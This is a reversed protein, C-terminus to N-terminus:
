QKKLKAEHYDEAFEMLTLYFWGEVRKTNCYNRIADTKGLSAEEVFHKNILSGLLDDNAKNKNALKLFDARREEATM